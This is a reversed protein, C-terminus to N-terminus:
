KKMIHERFALMPMRSQTDIPIEKKGLVNSGGFIVADNGIERACEIQIKNPFVINVSALPVEGDEDEVGLAMKKKPIKICLAMTIGVALVAPLIMTGRSSLQPM